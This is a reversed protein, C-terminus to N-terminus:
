VGTGDFFFFFFSFFLFFPSLPPFALTPGKRTSLFGFGFGFGFFIGAVQKTKSAV